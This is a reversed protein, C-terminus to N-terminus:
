PFRQKREHIADRELAEHRFAKRSGVPERAHEALLDAAGSLRRQVREERQLVDIRQLLDHVGDHHRVEHALPEARQERAQFGLLLGRRARIGHVHRRPIERCASGHPEAVQEPRDADVIPRRLM